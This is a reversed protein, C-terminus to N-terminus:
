INGICSIFDKSHKLIFKDLDKIDRLIMVFVGEKTGYKNIFETQSTRIKGTDSKCEIFLALINDNRGRILALWDPTGKPLGKIRGGYITNVELSNLRGYWCVEGTMEYVSLRNKVQKM